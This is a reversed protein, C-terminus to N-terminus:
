GENAVGQVPIRISRSSKTSKRIVYIASDRYTPDDARPFPGRVENPPVEVRLVWTRHGDRSQTPGSLSPKFYEPVRTRDLKLEVDEEDTELVISNNAKIGVVGARRPFPGLNLSGGGKGGGVVIDGLIAGSVRVPIPEAEQSASFLIIRNFEGWEIPTGDKAKARVTVPIRYASLVTTIRFRERQQLTDLDEGTLLVPQGVEVSDSEPKLQEHLLKVTLPFAPRTLSWCYLNGQQGDRLAQLDGETIAPMTLERDVGLPPAMLVHAELRASTASGRQGMWLDAYTQLLRPNEQRWSLRVRGIAGDPVRTSNERTFVTGGENDPLEPFLHEGDNAAALTTLDALSRPPQALTTAVVTRALYPTWSPPAVTLEVESCTCGKENLGVIVEQGSENVFWYDQHGRHRVETTQPKEGERPFLKAPFTLSPFADAPTNTRESYPIRGLYVTVFSIGGVMLALILVATWQASSRPVAEIKM